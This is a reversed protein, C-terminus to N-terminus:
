VTSKPYMELYIQYILWGAAIGVCIYILRGILSGFIGTVLYFDFIGALGWCIGGVIVLIFAIKNYLSMDKLM